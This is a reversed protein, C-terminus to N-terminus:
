RAFYYSFCFHKGLRSGGSDITVSNLKTSNAELVTDDIPAAIKNQLAVTPWPDGKSPKGNDQSLTIETIDRSLFMCEIDYECRSATFSLSTLQYYTAGEDSNTLISYPHLFKSGVNYLTGREIRKASKNAALRERVGLGNISLSSTSSQLSTWETSNVNSTGNYVKITGLKIM